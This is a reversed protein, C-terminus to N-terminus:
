FDLRHLEDPTVIIDAAARSAKGIHCDKLDVDRLQARVDDNTGQQPFVVAWNLGSAMDIAEQLTTGPGLRVPTPNTRWRERTNNKM